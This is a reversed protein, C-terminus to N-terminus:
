LIMLFHNLEKNDYVHSHYGEVRQTAQNCTIEKTFNNEVCGALTMLESKLQSDSNFHDDIGHSSGILNQLGQQIITAGESFRVSIVDAQHPNFSVRSFRASSVPIATASPYGFLGGQTVKLQGGISLTGKPLDHTAMLDGTNTIKIIQTVTNVEDLNTGTMLYDNTIIDTSARINRLSTMTGDEIVQFVDGNENSSYSSKIVFQPVTGSLNQNSGDILFTSTGPTAHGHSSLVYASPENDNLQLVNESGMAYPTSFLVQQGVKGGTSQDGMIVELFYPEDFTLVPENGVSQVDISLTFLGDNIVVDNISRSLLPASAQDPSSLKRILVLFNKTYNGEIPKLTEYDLLRGQYVITRPVAAGLVLTVVLSAIYILFYNKIM